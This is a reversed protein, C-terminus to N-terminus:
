APTRGERRLSGSVVYDVDLRRSAEEAGIPAPRARVGHGARDRLPQAAQGAPHHRRLGAGDALGGRVPVGPSRDAFPMVAISARRTPGATAGAAAQLHKSTPRAAACRRAMARKRPAGPWGSPAWDQGEAEFQRATAALHEDGELLRGRQPWHTSCPRMPAATSPRWACGDSSAASRKTAAPQHSGCWTNSSRWKAARLRRRQGVLWASYSASREIELGQLFEGGVPRWRACTSRALTEIGAARGACRSADVRLGGPRAPGDRCRCCRARREADDLVGAKSLSWRLEGRPDSPLDWLLECLHSRAVPHAGAGPLCPARAGQAVAAAGPGRWRAATGDARAAAAAPGHPALTGPATEM